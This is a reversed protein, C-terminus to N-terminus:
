VKKEPMFICTHLYMIKFYCIHLTQRKKKKKKQKINMTKADDYDDDALKIM